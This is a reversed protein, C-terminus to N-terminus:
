IIRSIYYFYEDFHDRPLPTPPPRREVGVEKKIELFM